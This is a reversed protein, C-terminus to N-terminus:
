PWRLLNGITQKNTKGGVNQSKSEDPLIQMVRLDILLMEWGAKSLDGSGVALFSPVHSGAHIYWTVVVPVAVPEGAMQAEWHFSKYAWIAYLSSVIVILKLPFSKQANWSGFNLAQVIDKNQESHDFHKIVAQKVSLM